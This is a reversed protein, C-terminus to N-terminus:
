GRGAMSIMGRITTTLREAKLLAELSLPMRYRWYWPSVAPVNIREEAPEPRPLSEDLALWDQLQLICWMAPSQLHAEILTDYNGGAWERITSMDHTSPTVVSLYPASTITSSERKPMRAVELSLIGLLQMVGPVCHPVMGLDEGCVLMDTAQQLVPLKKLAEQEWLANHRHFYYQDSLVRLKAQVDPELAAFSSTLHMHFRPHFEGEVPELFLVNTILDLLGQRIFPDREEAVAQQSTYPAQLRFTGDGNQEFYIGKVAPTADSFTDYLIPDTIYPQCYRSRTFPIGAAQLEDITFPIAPDFYGLLGDFTDRPIQWIRFFGLIHDIRFASFYLAMHALREKWWGYGTAAMQGWNYVPFGWNQGKVSFDDPPAGAQVNVNFLEPAEKVEVSHLFVGIPLDGKIVVGRSHAYSVADLLQNHLQYQVFYYFGVETPQGNLQMDKDREYSFRAYPELWHQHAAAWTHYAGDPKFATFLEKLVEMKIRIVQEYDLSPLENLKAQYKKYNKVKGVAPLHIYVPHLAFASIAAYPYSDTWSYNVTTDNVPLLQLIRQGTAAAWDALLKLDAFEGIGLGKESRLSFVPVAVGAGKWPTVPFRAFGDHIITRGHINFEGTFMVRNEGEEYIFQDGEKKAYKYETLIGRPIDAVTIFDGEATYTLPIAEKENWAGLEPINGIIYVTGTAKLLPAHVRFTYLAPAPLANVERKFFVDSFPATLWTNEVMGPWMWIDRVTLERDSHYCYITRTNREALTGLYYRYRFTAPDDVIITLRWYSDNYYEMLLKTEGQDHCVAVYLEQGWASSFRVYLHLTM